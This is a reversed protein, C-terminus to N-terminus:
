VRGYRRKRASYSLISKYLQRKSFDPWYVKPFYLEAYAVQWLMFNSLRVEGSTRVVFDLKPLDKTYLYNEMESKTIRPRRDLIINNIARVIEDHGGYNVGLNLIFDTNDKTKDLAKDISQVLDSPFAHYNGMVQFKVNYDGFYQSFDKDIFERFIDFLGNVEDKPRNWNETSFGYISVTHIGLNYCEKVTKILTDMGKKHGALRPLGRKTAWRGNGDIIFGIHRPAKAQKIKNKLM